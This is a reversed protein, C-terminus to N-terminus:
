RQKTTEHLNYLNRMLPCVPVIITSKGSTGTPIVVAGANSVNVATTGAFSDGAAATKTDIEGALRIPITTGQPITM